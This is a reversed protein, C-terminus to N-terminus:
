RQIRNLSVRELFTMHSKFTQEIVRDRNNLKEPNVKGNTFSNSTIHHIFAFFAGQGRVVDFMERNFALVEYNYLDKNFGIPVNTILIKINPNINRINDCSNKVHKKIFNISNDRKLDESGLVMLIRDAAIIDDIVQGQILGCVDQWALSPQHKM